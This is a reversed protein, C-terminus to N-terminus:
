HLQLEISIAPPLNLFSVKRRISGTEEAQACWKKVVQDVQRVRQSGSPSRFPIGIRRVGVYEFFTICGGEALLGEFLAFISEVDAPHFNALPLSSVIVDFGSDLSEKPLEQVPGQFFRIRDSNRQYEPLPHLSEKLREIFRPNVECIVFEDSPRLLKVIQRTFPGTGPGVELIRIPHSAQRIPRVM